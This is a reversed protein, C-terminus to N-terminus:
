YVSETPAIESDRGVLPETPAIESDRSQLGYNTIFTLSEIFLYHRFLFDKVM